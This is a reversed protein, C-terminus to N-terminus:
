LLASGVTCGSLFYGIRELSGFNLSQHRASTAKSSTIFTMPSVYDFEIVESEATIRHYDLDIHSHVWIRFKGSKHDALYEAINQSTATKDIRSYGGTSNYAVDNIDVCYGELDGDFADWSVNLDKDIKVGTIKDANTYYGTAPRTLADNYSNYATVAVEYLIGKQFKDSVDLKTHRM